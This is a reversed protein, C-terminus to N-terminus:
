PLQGANKVSRHNLFDAVYTKQMLLDGTYVSNQLIYRVTSAYWKAGGCGTKAGELSLTNAIHTCGQGELFLRFIRRVLAAQCANVTLKGSPSKDYGLLRKENVMGRGQQFRYQIGLRVNQSISQSEQQAISAMITLLIEGKADLTNIAEKEFEVAIGLAKLRRIHTLCDLTNRAFRSISKTLILDVRRAECDAMLQKFRERHATSTGTIGEDAYIDVLTWSQQATIRSHYHACQAEYSNEQEESSTSVRCYAAVRVPAPAGESREAEAARIVLVGAERRVGAQWAELESRIGVRGLRENALIYVERSVIAEHHDACYYRDRQGENCREVYEADKYTKQFLADGTYTVNRLIATVTSSHWQAEGYKTPLARLNFDAAIASPKEGRLARAFLERVAEAEAANVRLAGDESDYGYPPRKYKFQGQQFRKSYGWQVNKSFSRSEEAAFCSLLSLFLESDMRATNLNEKEFFVGVGLASLVRVLSLCDVTNRSFRSISKTLILDVRGNSAEDILRMLQPRTHAHTASVGSEVYIETLTWEPREAIVSQWHTQQAALSGQQTEEETSVRCYAAVRWRKKENKPLVTTVAKESLSGNM